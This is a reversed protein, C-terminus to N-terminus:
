LFINNAVPKQSSIRRELGTRQSYQLGRQFISRILCPSSDRLSRKLPTYMEKWYSLQAKLPNIPLKWNALYITSSM